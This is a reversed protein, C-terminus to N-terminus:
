FNAGWINKETSLFIEKPYKYGPICTNLFAPNEYAPIADRAPHLIQASFPDDSIM